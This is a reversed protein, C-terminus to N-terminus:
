IAEKVHAWTKGRVIFDINGRSVHFVAALEAITWGNRYLLRIGQVIKTTLKSHGNAEGRVASLGLLLAHETNEKPSVLELNDPRNDTKVGNKHNIQLEDPIDGHYHQWVLRHAGTVHEIGNRQSSVRLYRGDFHEARTPPDVAVGGSGARSMHRWVRGREDISWVGRGVEEILIREHHGRRSAM